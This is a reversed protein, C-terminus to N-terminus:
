ELFQPFHTHLGYLGRVMVIAAGLIMFMMTNLIIHLVELVPRKGVNVELQRSGSPEVQQFLLLGRNFVSVSRAGVPACGQKGEWNARQLTSPTNLSRDKGDGWMVAM